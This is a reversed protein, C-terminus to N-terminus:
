KAVKTLDPRILQGRRSRILQGVAKQIMLDLLNSKWIALGYLVRLRSSERVWFEITQNGSVGGVLFRVQLTRLQKPQGLKKRLVLSLAWDSYISDERFGRLENLVLRSVVTAQHCYSNVGLKLRIRSPIPWVWLIENDKNVGVASGTWWDYNSKSIENLMDELVLNEDLCDGGNLFLVYRGRAYSLGKNMGHFIGSDPGYLLTGFRAEVLSEIMGLTMSESGGDVVIWQIDNSIPISNATKHLGEVDNLTTTVITLIPSDVPNVEDNLSILFNLNYWSFTRRHALFLKNEARALGADSGELCFDTFATLHIEKRFALISLVSQDYRHKPNDSKMNKEQSCQEVWELILDLTSSLNSVGFVNASIQLGKEDNAVFNMLEKCENSTWESNTRGFNDFFVYGESEIKEFFLSLDATVAVGADIWIINRSNQLSNIVCFAKWAYNSKSGLFAGPFPEISVESLDRVCIHKSELLKLFQKQRSTLGIDWIELTIEMNVNCELLTQILTLLSHFYQDNAATVVKNKKTRRSM